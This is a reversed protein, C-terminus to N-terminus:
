GNFITTMKWNTIYVNVLPYDNPSDWMGHNTPGELWDTASTTKADNRSWFETVIPWGCTEVSQSM